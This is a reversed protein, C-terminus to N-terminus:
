FGISSASRRLMQEEGLIDEVAASIDEPLIHCAKERNLAKDGALRVSMHVKVRDALNRAERCNGFDQRNAQLRHFFDEVTEDSEEPVQYGSDDMMARFVQVLEKPQFNEFHIKFAVRSSIGPNCQLFRLMRDSRPDGDGGYGAFIVLRDSAHKELEVCLQALAEQTFCDADEGETLSYAEDLIIVGYQEFLAKVRGTTHGVYKAKLEAANLCISETNELLGLEAMQDALRLAWTTKGTGPAGLFAFTCHIPDGGLGLQQRKKQFALTDVIQKLQREVQQQGIMTRQASLAPTNKKAESFRSLYAFDKVNLPGTRHRRLLANSIAKSLTRNDVDGRADEVLHLVAAATKGRPIQSGHQRALQCLAQQKYLSDAQPQEITVVDTELEFALDEVGYARNFDSDMIQFDEAEERHDRWLVVVFARQDRMSQLSQTLAPCNGADWRIALPAQTNRLWWPTRRGQQQPMFGFGGMGGFFNDHSGYIQIVEYGEVCPLEAEFDFSCDESDGSSMLDDLEDGSPDSDEDDPCIDWDFASHGQHLRHFTGIYQAALELQEQSTSHLLYIQRQPDLLKALQRMHPQRAMERRISEPTIGPELVYPISTAMEGQTGVPSSHTKPILFRYDAFLHTQQEM